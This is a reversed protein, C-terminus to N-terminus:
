FRVKRVVAFLQIAQLIFMAPISVAISLGTLNYLQAPLWFVLVVSAIVLYAAGIIPSWSILRAQWNITSRLIDELTKM